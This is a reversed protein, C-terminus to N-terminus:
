HLEFYLDITTSNVEGATARLVLVHLTKTGDQPLLLLDVNKVTEVAHTSDHEVYATSGSTQVQAIFKAFDITVTENITQVAEDNYFLIRFAPKELTDGEANEKVVIQKLMIAADPEISVCSLPVTNTHVCELAATTTIEAVSITEKRIPTATRGIHRFELM